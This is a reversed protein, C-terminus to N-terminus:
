ENKVKKGKNDFMAQMSESHDGKLKNSGEYDSLKRARMSM